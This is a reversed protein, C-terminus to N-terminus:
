KPKKLSDPASAVVAVQQAEVAYVPLGAADYMGVVRNVKTIVPKVRLRTGDALLVESWKETSEEIAVEKLDLQKGQHSIQM